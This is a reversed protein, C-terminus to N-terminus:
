EALQLKIHEIDKQIQALKVQIDNNVASNQAIYENMAATFRESDAIHKELQVQTREVEIRNQNVKASLIFFQTVASISVLIIPLWFNLEPKSLINEYKEKM